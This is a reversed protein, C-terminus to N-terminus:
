QSNRRAFLAVEDGDGDDGEDDDFYFRAAESPSMVGLGLDLPELDLDDYRTM